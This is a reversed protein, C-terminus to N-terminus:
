TEEDEAGESTPSGKRRLSNNWATILRAVRGSRVELWDLVKCFVKLIAEAKKWEATLYDM